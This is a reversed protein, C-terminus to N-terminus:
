VCRVSVYRGPAPELPVYADSGLRSPASVPEGGHRRVWQSWHTWWSGPESKAAAFWADPDKAKAARKGTSWYSRRNASPPNIVGAIHGSAALVFQPEGGLLQTTRWASQWPVIHDLQTALVYGPVDIAGLDVPQGCMTLKGPVRLNNELYTHRLLWAYMPGPLNTADANWYLLDFADPTQGKLYNNVVYPWLLDNVRLTQFVFALAKGPYLGGRGISAECQEVGAENIYAGLDGPEDFDLLTTLLTLSAVTEDGRARLIALASALMTGGVCWGLANVKDAGTIALAIEIAKMVGHQLYDDWTTDRMSDDPNRWSILFVTHGQECAYRVFSNEPQLDLIYFKNVCPPVIVLPRAAVTATLPAYQIVQMLACEFVVAGESIAVNRGVEFASEDTIAIQGRALDQLLNALGARLSEGHSELAIRAVEPNTAAFNAPSMADIFQRAFFRLTRRAKDDLEAADVMAALLRSNVLYSQKLASYSANRTWDEGAFRRDDPEPPTVPFTASAGAADTVLFGRWLAIQQDWYRASAEALPSAEANSPADEITTERAYGLAQTWAQASEVCVRQWQQVLNFHSAM